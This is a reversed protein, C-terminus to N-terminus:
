RKNVKIRDKMMKTEKFLNLIKLNKIKAKLIKNNKELVIKCKREEQKMQKSEESEKLTKISKLTKRSSYSWTKEINLEQLKHNNKIHFNKNLHYHKGNKHYKKQQYHDM